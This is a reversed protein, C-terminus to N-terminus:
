RNASKVTHIANDSLPLKRCGVQFVFCQKAQDHDITMLFNNCGHIALKAAPLWCRVTQQRSVLPGSGTTKNRKGIM